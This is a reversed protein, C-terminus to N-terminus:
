LLLEYIGTLDSSVIGQVGSSVPKHVYITFNWSEVM